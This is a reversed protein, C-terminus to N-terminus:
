GHGMEIILILLLLGAVIQEKYLFRGTKMVASPIPELITKTGPPRPPNYNGAALWTSPESGPRYTYTRNNATDEVTWYLIGRKETFKDNKSFDHVVENLVLAANRAKTPNGPFLGTLLQYINAISQNWVAPGPRVAAM